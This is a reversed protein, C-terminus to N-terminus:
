KVLKYDFKEYFEKERIPLKLFAEDVTFTKIKESVEFSIKDGVKITGATLALAFSHDIHGESLNGAINVTNDTGESMAPAVNDIKLEQVDVPNKVDVGAEQLGTSPKQPKTGQVKSEKKNETTM